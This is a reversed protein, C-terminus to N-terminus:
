TGIHTWRVPYTLGRDSAVTMEHSQGPLLRALVETGETAIVRVADHGALTDAGSVSRLILSYGGCCSFLIVDRGGGPLNTSVSGAPDSPTLTAVQKWRDTGIPQVEIRLGATMGALTAPGTLAGPQSV